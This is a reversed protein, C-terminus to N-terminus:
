TRRSAKLLWESSLAGYVVHDVFCGHLREVQRLVGERRFGLREAVALSRTNEAAARIEVRNLTSERFAHNLITQCSMTMLGRGEYAAGIWYGLSAVRNRRDIYHLYVLGILRERHSMAVHCAEHCAAQQQWRAITKTMGSLSRATAVSPLWSGLHARSADILSLLEEAHGVELPVLMLDGTVRLVVGPVWAAKPETTSVM